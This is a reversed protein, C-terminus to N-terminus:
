WVQDPLSAALTGTVTANSNKTITLTTILGVCNLKGNNQFIAHTQYEGSRAITPANVNTMVVNGNTTEGIIASKSDNTTDETYATYEGGIINLLKNVRPFFCWSSGVSNHIRAKCNIFTGCYALITDRYSSIVFRSSEVLWNGDDSFVKCSTNLSDNLVNLTLNVFKGYAGKFFIHQKGTALQYYVEGCNSFDLIFHNNNQNTGFNFICYPSSASGDGSAPATIGLNGIVNLKITKYNNSNNTIFTRVINSILVNDNTGNCYYNYENLTKLDAVDQVWQNYDEIASSLGEGDVFNNLIVSIDAGANKQSTFTIKIYQNTTDITFNESEEKLGNVYVNIFSYKNNYLNSPIDTVVFLASTQLTTDYEFRQIIADYYDDYGKVATFYPCLTKDGRTDVINSQTISTANPNVALYGLLLDYIDDNRTLDSVSPISSTGTIVLVYNKRAGVSQTNDQRLVVLDYRTSTTPATAIPLTLLSNNIYGKGRITAKGVNVSVNMGEAAVVKLGQPIGTGVENDTKVVGSECVISLWDSIDDASYNRDYGTEYDSNPFANFFLGKEAM